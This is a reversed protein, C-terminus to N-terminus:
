TSSTISRPDSDLADEMQWPGVTIDPLGRIYWVDGPLADDGPHTDAGV